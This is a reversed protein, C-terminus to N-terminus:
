ILKGCSNIRAISPQQLNQSVFVIDFQERRVKLKMRFAKAFLMPMQLPNSNTWVAKEWQLQHCVQVKESPTLSASL